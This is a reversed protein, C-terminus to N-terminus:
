LDVLPLRINLSHLMLPFDRLQENKFFDPHNFAGFNRQDPTIVRFTHPTKVQPDNATKMYMTLSGNSSEISKMFEINSPLQIEDPPNVSKVERQYESLGYLIEQCLKTSELVEYFRVMCRAYCDGSEATSISWIQSLPGSLYSLYPKRERIDVNIGSARLNPGTLGSNFAIDKPILGLGILNMKVYRDNTFNELTKKIVPMKKVFRVLFGHANKSQIAPANGYPIRIEELQFDLQSQFLKHLTILLNNFKRFYNPLHLLMAFDKFWQLHSIIRNFEALFMRIYRVKLPITYNFIDELLLTFGLDLDTINTPYLHAIPNYEAQGIVTKELESHTNKYLWGDKLLFQQIQSDDSCKAHFYPHEKLISNFMSFKETKKQSKSTPLKIPQFLDIKDFNHQNRQISHFELGLRNHINNQWFKASPYFEVISEQTRNKQIETRFIYQSEDIFNMLNFQYNLEVHSEYDSGYISEFLFGQTKLWNTLKKIGEPEFNIIPVNPSSLTGIGKFYRGLQNEIQNLVNKKDVITEWKM